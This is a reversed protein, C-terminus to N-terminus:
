RRRLMRGVRRLWGVSALADRADRAERYDPRLQLCREYSESAEGMLGLAAQCQGMQYWIYGHAPESNLASRLHRLANSAQQYHLYVRAIVVQDFWDAAREALAKQFCQDFFKQGGALLAEGRAIWRWPSSGPSRLSGDSCAM